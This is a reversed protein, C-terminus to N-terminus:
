RRTKKTKRRKKTIILSALIPILLLMSSALLYIDTSELPPPQTETQTFTLTKKEEERYQLPIKESIAVNGVDDYAVAYVEAEEGSKLQFLSTFLNKDKSYEMLYTRNDGIIGPIKSKVIVMLVAKISENDLDIISASAEFLGSGKPDITLSRIVPPRSLWLWGVKKTNIETFWIRDVDLADCTIRGNVRVENISNGDIEGITWRSRAVYIIRKDPLIHLGIDVTSGQELSWTKEINMNRSVRFIKDEISAVVLGDSSAKLVQVRESMKLSRRDGSKLDIRMITYGDSLAIWLVDNSVSIKGVGYGVDVEISSREVLTYLDFVMVLRIDPITVLVHEKSSELDAPRGPLDIEKFEGGVLDYIVLKGSLTILFIKENSAVIDVVDISAKVTKVVNSIKDLIILNGEVPDHIVLKDGITALLGPTFEPLALYNPQSIAYVELTPLTFLGTIIFFVILSTLTREKEM